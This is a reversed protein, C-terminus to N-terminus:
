PQDGIPTVIATVGPKNLVYVKRAIVSVVQSDDKWIGADTLGDLVARLLKDLDPKVTPYARRSSAPKQMEFTIDMAVPGDTPIWKQDTAALQTTLTVVARWPKLKSSSEVMVARGNIVYSKKSGQPAAVGPIRITLTKVTM